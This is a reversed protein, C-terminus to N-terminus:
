RMEIIIHNELESLVRYMTEEDEFKMFIIGLAKNASSFYEIRDGKSVYLKEKVIYKSLKSDIELNDFIGDQNTHINHTAFYKNEEFKLKGIKKGMSIDVLLKMMDVNSVMSLLEPIMNGGSRPGIEIFYLNDNKDFILEINFGGFELELLNAIRKLEEEIKVIRNKKLFVPYSKGVPVLHNVKFDRHCNLLGLFKIEGDLIFIDGGVLFEHDKEIFEEVIVTGERSNEKAFNFASELNESSYVKSIGKSGSSDTPKVILPYMYNDVDIEELVSATNCKPTNFSNDQLFNRFLGKNSLTKVSKYPNTPLSLKESVYAATAAAPDSAYAVIGDIKENISIELIKEKDTTSELYFKDAFKQGPNDSLFDCLITFYGESKAYQIAPVQQPSGGLLLIKKM